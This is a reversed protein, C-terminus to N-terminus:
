ASIVCKLSGRWSSVFRNISIPLFLLLMSIVMARANRADAAAAVGVSLLLVFLVSYDHRCPFCKYWRNRISLLYAYLRLAEEHQGGHSANEGM